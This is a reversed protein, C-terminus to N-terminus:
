AVESGFLALRATAKQHYLLAQRIVDSDTLRNEAAYRRLYAADEESVRCYIPVTLGPRRARAM